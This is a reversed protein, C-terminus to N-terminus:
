PVVSRKANEVKIREQINETFKKLADEKAAKFAPELFPYARVKGGGATDFRARKLAQTRRGGTIKSGRPVKRHGLEVFRWYFADASGGKRGKAVKGQRVGVFYHELGRKSDRARKIYIARRLTGPTEGKRVPSVRPRQLIKVVQNKFIRSAAAVGNRFTKRQMDYTFAAMARKFDPLNTKVVVADAM